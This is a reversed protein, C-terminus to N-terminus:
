IKLYLTAIDQRKHTGKKRWVICVVAVVNSIFRHCVRVRVYVTWREVPNQLLQCASFSCCCSFLGFFTLCCCSCCLFCRLAGGVRLLPKNRFFTQAYPQIPQLFFRVNGMNKERDFDFVSPCLSPHLFLFVFLCSSFSVNKSRPPNPPFFTLLSDLIDSWRFAVCPLLSCLWFYCIYRDVIYRRSLASPLSACSRSSPVCGTPLVDLCLLVM